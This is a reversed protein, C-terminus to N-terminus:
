PYLEDKRIPTAFSDIAAALNQIYYLDGIFRTTDIYHTFAQRRKGLIWYQALTNGNYNQLPSTRHETAQQKPAESIYWLPLSYDLHDLYIKCENRAYKGLWYGVEETLDNFPPIEQNQHVGVELPGRGIVTCATDIHLVTRNDDKPNGRVLGYQYMLSVYRAQAIRAMSLKALLYLGIRQEDWWDFRRALRTLGIAGTLWRNYTACGQLNYYFLAHRDKIDRRRAPGMIAWDQKAIMEMALEHVKQQLHPGPQEGTLRLYVDFGYLEFLHDWNRRDQERKLAYNLQRMEAWPFDYPTRLTDGTYHERNFSFPPNTQFENRLYEQIRRQLPDSLFPYAASLAQSLETSTAWYFHSFWTGGIGGYIYLLPALHGADLMQRIHHELKQQLLIAEPNVVHARSKPIRLLEDLGTIHYEYGDLDEIGMALGATDMFDYNVPEVKQRAHFFEVPANGGLAVALIPPIPASKICPSNWDDKFTMWRFDNKIKVVGDAPDINFDESVTLPFVGLRAAWLRCQELVEPQSITKWNETEYPLFLRGGALPMVAIKGAEEAFTFVLGSEGTRHISEIKHELRFLVPLDMAEPPRAYGMMTKSVGLESEVDHRHLHARVPAADTFWALVWPENLKFADDSLNSLETTPYVLPRSNSVFAIYKPGATCKFTISRAPSELLVAPSLRNIILRAHSSGIVYNAQVSDWTDKSINPKPAASDAFIVTFITDTTNKYLELPLHHKVRNLKPWGDDFNVLWCLGHAETFNNKAADSPLMDNARIFSPSLQLTSAVLIIVAKKM